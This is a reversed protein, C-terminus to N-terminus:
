IKSVFKYGLSILKKEFYNKDNITRAIIIKVVYNRKLWDWYRYKITFQNDINDYITYTKM